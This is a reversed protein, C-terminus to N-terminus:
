GGHASAPFRSNLLGFFFLWLYLMNEIALRCSARRLAIFLSASFNPQTRAIIASYRGPNHAPSVIGHTDRRLRSPRHSRSRPNM